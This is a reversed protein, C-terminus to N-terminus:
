NRYFYETKHQNRYSYNKIIPQNKKLSDFLHLNSRILLAAKYKYKRPLPMSKCQKADIDIAILEYETPHYMSTTKTVFLLKNRIDYSTTLIGTLTRINTINM